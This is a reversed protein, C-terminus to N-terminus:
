GGLLAKVLQLCGGGPPTPTPTPTPTPEPEPTPGPEPESIALQYAEFGQARGTGQTNADLGLNLASDMLIKKIQQSTLSPNAELLLAAAGSAHPTAMSTGSATTYYQDVIQGMATGSARCSHIEGGPFCLDPKVRGDSTPGRSSFSTVKDQKDTAGVTVALRAAGPAGVTGGAPGDNGAAVCVVIGRDAAADCATSLADTGDSPGSSGLSLNIVQAKKEVLFELGAIVDSMMGSGDRRLVKAILFFCEPAVGRYRFNSAAGSGGVIGAVHTGHGHEDAVGEGTVDHLERIRTAFDPHNPDIGTDVIGVRIGQGLVGANHVAPAGIIPVSEDLWVHVPEDLWIREVDPRRALVTIAEPTASLASGPLLRAFQRYVAGVGSVAAAAKATEPLPRHMVIVRFAGTDAARAFPTEQGEPSLVQQLRPHIKPNNIM